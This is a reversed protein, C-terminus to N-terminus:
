VATTLRPRPSLRKFTSVECTVELSPIAPVDRDSRPVTKSSWTGTTTQRGSSGSAVFTPLVSVPTVNPPPTSGETVAQLTGTLRFMFMTEQGDQLRRVYTIPCVSTGGNVHLQQTSCNRKISATVWDAARSQASRKPDFDVNDMCSQDVGRAYQVDGSGVPAILSGVVSNKPIAWSAINPDKAKWGNGHRNTITGPEAPAYEWTVGGDTSYQCTLGTYLRM